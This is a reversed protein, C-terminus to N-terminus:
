GAAWIVNHAEIWAEGVKVRPMAGGEVDTVRTKLMVEVGMAELDRQARACLEDPFGSPLVRDQGEILVVRAESTDIHRFDRRIVTRAIEAIAGSTEVGTPGAGIVVFTMLARRRQADQEQEAAEFALLFRRRIEMADDISKLGRATGSWEDHGFYSHTAGTAVVLVDFDIARDELKVRRSAADIAKVEGLVVEANAQRSLIGRIPAAIHAPSLRATAVQYLMPQFLHHNRRDIVTIRVPADRLRKAVELGAFGTGIIVVHTM